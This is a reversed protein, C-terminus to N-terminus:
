WPVPSRNTSINSSAPRSNTRSQSQELLRLREDTTFLRRLIQQQQQAVTGAAPALNSVAQGLRAAHEQVNKTAQKQANLEVKLQDTLPLPDYATNTRALSFVSPVVITGQPHLNWTEPLERVYVQGAEYMLGPNRPDIRRGLSYARYTGPYRIADLNNTSVPAPTLAPRPLPARAAVPPAYYQEHACGAALVLLISLAVPTKM